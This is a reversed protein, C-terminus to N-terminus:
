NLRQECLLSLQYLKSNNAIPAQQIYLQIAPDAKFSYPKNQFSHVEKLIGAILYMKEFNVLKDYVFDPNGDEIFTLDKL